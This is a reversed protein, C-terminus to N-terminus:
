DDIRLSSPTGGIQVDLKEYSELRAGLRLLQCHNARKIGDRNADDECYAFVASDDALSFRIRIGREM